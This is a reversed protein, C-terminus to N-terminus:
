IEQVRHTSTLNLAGKTTRQSDIYPPATTQVGTLLYSIWADRSAQPQEIIQRGAITTGVTANQANILEAGSGVITISETPAGIELAVNVTSPSGVDVKADQVVAQKFGPATVTVTYTGSQLAPVNFTGNDTTVATFEQGTANHKITVTAGSVVATTPDTVTGTISGTSTGQGFGSVSLSTIAVLLILFRLGADKM